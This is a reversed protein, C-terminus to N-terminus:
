ARISCVSGCPHQQVARRPAALRVHDAGRHRGRPQAEHADFARLHEVLVYSGALGGDAIEEPVHGSASAHLHISGAKHYPAMCTIVPRRQATHLTPREKLCRM